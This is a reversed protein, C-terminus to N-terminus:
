HRNNSPMQDDRARRPVQINDVTPQHSTPIPRAHSAADDYDRTRFDEVTPPASEYRRPRASPDVSSRHHTAVTSFHRRLFIVGRATAASPLLVHQLRYIQLRCCNMTSGISPPLSRRGRKRQHTPIMRQRGDGRGRFINIPRFYLLRAGKSM